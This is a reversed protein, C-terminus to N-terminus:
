QKIVLVNFKEGVPMNTQQDELYIEWRANTGNWMVGYAIGDFVAGGINKKLASGSLSHTVIVIDTAAM